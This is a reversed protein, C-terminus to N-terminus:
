KICLLKCRRIGYERKGRGAETEGSIDVLKDETDALRNRNQQICENTKSLAYCKSSHRVRWNSSFSQKLHSFHCSILISLYTPACISHIRFGITLTQVKDQPCHVLLHCPPLQRLSLIRLTTSFTLPQSYLCLSVQVLTIM